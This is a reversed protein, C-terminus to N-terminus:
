AAVSIAEGIAVRVVQGSHRTCDVGLVVAQRLDVLRDIVFRGAEIRCPIRVAPGRGVIVAVAASTDAPAGQVGRPLLETRAM